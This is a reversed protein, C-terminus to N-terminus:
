AIRYMEIGFDGMSMWKGHAAEPPAFAVPAIVPYLIRVEPIPEFHSQAVPATIPEIVSPPRIFGAGACAGGVTDRQPEAEQVVM